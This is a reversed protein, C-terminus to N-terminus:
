LALMESRLSPRLEKKLTQKILDLADLTIKKIFKCDFRSVDEFIGESKGYLM